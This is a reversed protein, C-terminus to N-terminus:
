RSQLPGLRHPRGHCNGRLGVGLEPAGLRQPGIDADVITLMGIPRPRRSGRKATPDIDDHIHRAGRLSMSRCAQEIVATHDGGNAHEVSPETPPLLDAFRDGADSNATAVLVLRHQGKGGQMGYPGDNVHDIIKIANLIGHTMEFAPSEEPFDAQVQM